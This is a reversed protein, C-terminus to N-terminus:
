YAGRNYVYPRYFFPRYFPRYFFPRYFPRVAYVPVAPRYVMPPPYVYVPGSPPVPAAALLVPATRHALRRHHGHRIPRVHGPGHGGARPTNPPGQLPRAAAQSRAATTGSPAAAGAPGGSWEITRPPAAVPGTGPAGEARAIGALSGAAALMTMWGVRLTRVRVAM